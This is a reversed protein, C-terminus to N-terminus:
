HKEPKCLHKEKHARKKCRQCEFRPDEQKQALKKADNTKCLTKSMEKEKLITERMFLLFANVGAKAKNPM